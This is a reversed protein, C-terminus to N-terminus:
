FHDAIIADSLFACDDEHCTALPKQHGSKVHSHIIKKRFKRMDTEAFLYLKRMLYSATFLIVWTGWDHISPFIEILFHFM